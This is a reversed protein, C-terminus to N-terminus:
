EGAGTRGPPEVSLPHCRICRAIRGDGLEALRTREDCEGCWPPRPPRPDDDAERDALERRRQDLFARLGREDHEPRGIIALLYAFPDGVGRDDMWGIIHERLREDVGLGDLLTRPDRPRAPARPLTSSELALPELAISANASTVANPTTPKQSGLQVPEPPRTAHTSGHLMPARSVSAVDTSPKVRAADSTPKVRGANAPPKDVDVLLRYSGPHGPGTGPRYEIRGSAALEARAKVVTRVARGAQRALAGTEITRWAGEHRTVTELALLVRLQREPMKPLALIALAGYNTV